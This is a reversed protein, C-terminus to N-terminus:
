GKIEVNQTKSGEILTFRYERGAEKDFSFTRGTMVHHKTTPRCENEKKAECDKFEDIVVVSNGNNRLVYRNANNDIV